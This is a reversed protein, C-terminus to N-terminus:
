NDANEVQFPDKNNKPRPLGGITQYTWYDFQTGHMGDDHIGKFDIWNHVLEHKIFRQLNPHEFDANCDEYFFRELIHIQSSGTAWGNTSTIGDIFQPPVVTAFDITPTPMGPFLYVYAEVLQQLKALHYTKQLDNKPGYTYVTKKNEEPPPQIRATPEDVLYPNGTTKYPNHWDPPYHSEREKLQNPVKCYPCTELLQFIQYCKPCFYEKDQLDPRQKGGEWFASVIALSMLMASIFNFLLRIEVGLPHNSHLYWASGWVVAGLTALIFQGPRFRDGGSEMLIGVNGCLAAIALFFFIINLIEM